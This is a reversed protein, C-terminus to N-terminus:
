EANHVKLGDSRTYHVDFGALRTRCDEDLVLVLQGALWPSEKTQWADFCEAELEKIVTDLVAPNYTLQPPLRLGSSAVITALRNPPAAETPLELGGREESLDPMTTVAGDARRQVVLVELSERTDRVQASGGRTEDADGVGADVWGILARGDRATKGLLFAEAKERSEAQEKEHARAAAAMADRWTDPGVPVDGYATQVLPSIADPLLVATGSEATGDFHPALVAASRLLAHPRYVLQSGKVPTPPVTDWDAGTILCRAARLREPRDSQGDGRAHRHLRGMRQLLLDIPALDTVLLDFDVDLSQEVVQGAVVVRRRPRQGHPVKEPPGFARLLAADNDARDLDLFRAHAVTVADGGLRGRLYQATEHVRRVTNRVVLACGGDALDEALRDALAGLDDDFREVQVSAGRGSAAPFATRPAEDTAAATIVPYGRAAAVAASQESEGAYADVLERRREAPLTASLVVVPVGYRGLWTLVRDLYSNMYTDYAHAEDIVVVKGAIALHRMALHRSKLGAFLLQDITGAAFSALMGKKRGRLWQHAVLTTATAREDARHDAARDPGDRDVDAATARGARKLGAFDKNLAAKSHALFVSHAGSGEPADTLHRLWELLRPFMANGTAMTPLAVYCGGAGSRAAYIEAVALAAETKGEGMPAEIIMLGPRAMDRAVAVADRQVPRVRAGEPLDFRAAFVDDPGEEPEVAVWPPPLDLGRWAADIRERDGSPGGPFYPFLDPNSAIWDAVIVLGTLLVQVPQPLKVRSWADFRESAACLHAARDLLETQVARWREKCDRSALLARHDVLAKIGSQSPPVGHHGGAIIAFQTTAPRPWGHRGMLWQQILEQGALAHPALSRDAMRPKSAMGLGEARMADALSDVQCAFAPTAKGIDHTAAAWVALRRADEAGGPLADAILTRVQAPLWEDWLKGAVAASDGMHRWLPLWGDADFDSKAWVARAAGSLGDGWVTRGGNGTM